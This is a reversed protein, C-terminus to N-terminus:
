REKLHEVVPGGELEHAACTWGYLKTDGATARVYAGWVWGNHRGNEDYSYSKLRPVVCERVLTGHTLLCRVHGGGPNSEGHTDQLWSWCLYTYDNSSPAGSGDRDGANGYTAWMSGASAPKYLMDGPIHQVDVAALGQVPAPAGRGGGSPSPRQGDFSAIDGTWIHGYMPRPMQYGNGGLFFVTPGRRGQGEIEVKHLTEHYDLRLSGNYKAEGVKAATFVLQGRTVVHGTWNGQCDRLPTAEHRPKVYVNNHHQGPANYDM